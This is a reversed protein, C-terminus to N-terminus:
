KNVVMRKTVSYNGAKFNYFYVGSSLKDGSINLKYQGSGQTGENYTAVVKGTVDIVEVTVNATENLNYTIVTNDNFPNPQNQSVSISPNIVNENVTLGLDLNLLVYPENGSWYWNGDGGFWLAGSFDADALSSRYNYINGYSEITIAYVNAPDLVVPVDGDSNDPDSQHLNFTYWGDLMGSVLEYGYFAVPVDNTRDEIWITVPVDVITPQNTGGVTELYFDVGHLETLDSVTFLGGRRTDDNSFNNIETVPNVDYNIHGVSYASIRFTRTLTDNEPIEDTEDYKVVSQVRYEGIALTSMDFTTAFTMTDRAEAMFTGNILSGGSVPGFLVANTGADFVTVELALNTPQNLGDNSLPAQVTLTGALEPTINTYEYDLELDQLWLKEQKVEYPPIEFIVMNDITWYYHSSIQGAGNADTGVWTFKVKVDNNNAAVPDLYQSINVSYKIPEALDNSNDNAGLGLDLPIEAGYTAGNDNSIAISWPEDNCCFMANLDFELTANSTASLDITPSEVFGNVITTAFGGPENSGIPTRSDWLLHRGDMFLAFGNPATTATSMAWYSGETFPAATSVTWLGNGTTLDTSGDFEETWLINLARDEASASPRYENLIAKTNVKEQLKGFTYPKLNSQGMVTFGSILLAGFLYIKKM